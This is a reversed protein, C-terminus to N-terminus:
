GEDSLCLADYGTTRAADPHEYYVICLIAKAGFVALGLASQEMRELARTRLQPSHWRFPGLRLVFLPALASIATLCLWLVLRARTGAHAVFDDADEVLWDLREAPPPGEPTTFLTEALARANARMGRTMGQRGAVRDRVAVRGATLPSPM